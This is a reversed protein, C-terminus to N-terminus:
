NAMRVPMDNATHLLLLRKFLLCARAYNAPIPGGSQHAPTLLAVM